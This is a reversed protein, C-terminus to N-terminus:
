LVTDEPGYSTAPSSTKSKENIAFNKCHFARDGSVEGIQAIPVTNDLHDKVAVKRIKEGYTGALAMQPVTPLWDLAKHTSFNTMPGLRARQIAPATVTM